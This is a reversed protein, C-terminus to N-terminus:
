DEFPPKGRLIRPTSLTSNVHALIGEVAKTFSDIDLEEELNWSELYEFPDDLIEQLFEAIGALYDDECRYDKAAFGIEARMPESAEHALRLTAYAMPTLYDTDM